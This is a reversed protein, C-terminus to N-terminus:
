VGAQAVAGASGCEPCREPTARIDYGCVLCTLLNDRKRCHWLTARWAWLLPLIATVAVVLWWRLVVSRIGYSLQTPPAVAPPFRGAPTPAPKAPITIRQTPMLYYELGPANFRQEGTASNPPAVVGWHTLKPEYGLRFTRYRTRPTQYESMRLQGKSNAIWRYSDFTQLQGPMTGTHQREFNFQEDVAYSRVWLAAAAVCVIFSGFALFNLTWRWMTRQRWRPRAVWALPMVMATLFIWGHFIAVRPKEMVERWEESVNWRSSFDPAVSSAGAPMIVEPIRSGDADFSYGTELWKQRSTFPEQREDEAALMLLMHAPAFRHPDDKAERLWIRMAPELGQGVRQRQRFRQYVTWTPSDRRVAGAVYDTGILGWTFDDNSMQWITERALPDKVAERPPGALVFQGWKSKVVAPEEDSSFSAIHWERQFSNWWVFVMAVALLLSVGCLLHLVIGRWRRM